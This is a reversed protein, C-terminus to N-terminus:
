VAAPAAPPVKPQEEILDPGSLAGLPGLFVIRM